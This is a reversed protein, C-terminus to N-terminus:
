NGANKEPFGRKKSVAEGLTKRIESPDDLDDLMNWCESSTQSTKM